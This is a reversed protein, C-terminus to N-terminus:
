FGSRIQEQRQGGSHDSGYLLGGNISEARVGQGPRIQIGIELWKAPNLCVEAYIIVWRVLKLLFTNMSLEKEREWSKMFRVGVGKWRHYKTINVVTDIRDCM